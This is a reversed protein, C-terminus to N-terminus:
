AGSRVEERIEDSQASWTPAPLDRHGRLPGLVLVLASVAFGATMVWLSARTGAVSALAGAAVAGLPITGLNVFQMSTSVRALLHPPCYTQRFSGSVVNGAVVGTIVLASGVVFLATRAGPETLPILLACPGAGAKCLVLTRATGLRRSLMPASSAGVVGGLSTMTLLLGVTAADLGVERVLFVVLLAQYGILWLNSLAGHITLNLLYRDGAVFRAGEAIERRLRPQQEPPPTRREPRRVRLLCLASVVFTGAQVLLGAVAGVAGALLGAIGPGAVQAASESGYLFANAPVLQRQDLVAPLYSTWATQFFVTATGIVVAAALLHGITLLDLWAAVPVSLVAVAAVVDSAIMVPRKPRRDVWAGAPLGIVLWPVWAAAMLLTITFASADLVELAVLPTAVSAVSSGLRSSATGLWILRFTDDGRLGNGKTGEGTM